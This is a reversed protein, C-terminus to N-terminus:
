AIPNKLTGVLQLVGSPDALDAMQRNDRLQLRNLCSPAFQSAFMDYHRFRDALGPRSRQYDRV